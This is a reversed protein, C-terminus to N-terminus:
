EKISHLQNTYVKSRYPRNNSWSQNYYLITLVCVCVCQSYKEVPFWVVIYKGAKKTYQLKHIKHTEWPCWSHLQHERSVAARRCKHPLKLVIRGQANSSATMDHLRACTITTHIRSLQHWLSFPFESGGLVSLAFTLAGTPLLGSRGSSKEEEEKVKEVGLLTAAAKSHSGGAGGYGGKAAISWLPTITTM